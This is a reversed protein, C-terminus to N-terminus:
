AFEGTSPTVLYILLYQIHKLHGIFAPHGQSDETGLLSIHTIHKLHGIFAPHGQSDETGLLSIHKIHKLHGIFAPHGKQCLTDVHTLADSVDGVIRKVCLSARKFERRPSSFNGPYLLVLLQWQQQQRGALIIQCVSHYGGTLQQM